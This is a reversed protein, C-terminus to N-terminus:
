VAATVDFFAHDPKSERIVEAVFAATEGCPDAAKDNTGGTKAARRAPALGAPERLLHGTTWGTSDGGRKSEPAATEAFRVEQLGHM